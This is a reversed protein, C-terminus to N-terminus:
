EEVIHWDKLDNKKVHIQEQVLVEGTQDCIWWGNMNYHKEDEDLNTPWFKVTRNKEHAILIPSSGVAYSHAWKDKLENITM